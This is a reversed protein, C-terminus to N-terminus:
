EVIAMVDEEKLILHDENDIRVTQGAWQSYMVTDGEKIVLPVTIGETTLKGTGVGLVKGQMPKEKANDPIVLGSKTVTESDLPKILVRDRIPNVKMHKEENLLFRLDKNGFFYLLTDQWFKSSKAIPLSLM